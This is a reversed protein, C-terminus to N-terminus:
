GRRLLEESTVSSTCAGQGGGGPDGDCPPSLIHVPEERQGEGWTVWSPHHSLGSPSALRKQDALPPALRRRSTSVDPRRLAPRPLHRASRYRLRRRPTMRRMRTRPARRRLTGEVADQAESDRGARGRSRGRGGAAAM